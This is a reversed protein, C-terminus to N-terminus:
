PLGHKGESSGCHAILPYQKVVFKSVQLNATPTRDGVLAIFRDGLTPVRFFLPSFVFARSCWWVASAEFEYNAHAIRARCAPPPWTPRVTSYRPRLRASHHLTAALLGDQKVDRM